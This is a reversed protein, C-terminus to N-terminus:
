TCLHTCACAHMCVSCCRRWTPMFARRHAYVHVHVCVCPYVCTWQRSSKPSSYCTCTCMCLIMGAAKLEEAFKRPRSSAAPAEVNDVHGDLTDLLSVEVMGNDLGRLQVQVHVHVYHM